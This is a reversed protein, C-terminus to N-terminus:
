ATSYLLGRNPQYRPNRRSIVEAGNEVVLMGNESYALTPTGLVELENEKVIWMTKYVDYTWLGHFMTYDNIVKTRGWADFGLDNQGTQVLVATSENNKPNTNISPACVSVLLLIFIILIYQLKM